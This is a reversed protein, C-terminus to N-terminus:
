KRLYKILALIALVLLTILLLPMIMMPLMMWSMGAMMSNCTEWFGTTPAALATVPFLLLPSLLTLITKM